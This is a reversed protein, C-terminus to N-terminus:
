KSLGNIVAVLAALDLDNAHQEFIKREYPRTAEVEPTYGFEDPKEPNGGYEWERGVIKKEHGIEFVKIKFRRNM